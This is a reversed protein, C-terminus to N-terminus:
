AAVVNTGLKAEGVGDKELRGLYKWTQLDGTVSTSASSLM